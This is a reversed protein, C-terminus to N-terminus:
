YNESAVKSSMVKFPTQDVNTVPRPIYQTKYIKLLLIVMFFLFLLLDM